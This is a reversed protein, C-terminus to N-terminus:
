AGPNQSSPTPTKLTQIINIPNGARIAELMMALAAADQATPENPDEAKMQATAEKSITALENVTIKEFTAMQVDFEHKTIIGNRYDERLEQIKDMDNEAMDLKRALLNNAKNKLSSASVAADKIIQNQMVEVTTSERKSINYVTMPHIERDFEKKVLEVIEKRGAGTALHKVVFKTITAPLKEAM